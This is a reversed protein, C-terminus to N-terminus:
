EEIEGVEKVLFNGEPSLYVVDTVGLDQLVAKFNPTAEESVFFVNSMASVRVGAVEELIQISRAPPHGYGEVTRIGHFNAAITLNFMHPVEFHYIRKPGGILQSRREQIFDDFRTWNARSLHIERFKEPMGTFHTALLLPIILTRYKQLSPIVFLLLLVGLGILELGPLFNLALTASLIAAVVKWSFDRSSICILPLLFTGLMLSRQPVRFLRIVPLEAIGDLPWFGASFGTALVLTGALAILVRRKRPVLILGALFPIFPYNIEHFFGFARHDTLSNYASTVLAGVDAFNTVTYSYVVHSARTRLNDGHSAHTLMALFSPLALVVGGAIVPALRFFYTRFSLQESRFWFWWLPVYFLHYAIVQYGQIGFSAGLTLVSVAIHTRSSEYFFSTAVLFPLMGFLLNFHGAYVRNVVIPSLVCYVLLLVDESPTLPKKKLGRVLIRTYYWLIGILVVFTSNLLEIPGMGAWRLPWWFIMEGYVALLNQGGFIVASPAYSERLYEAVIPMWLNYGDQGWIQYQSFVVVVGFIGALLFHLRPFKGTM